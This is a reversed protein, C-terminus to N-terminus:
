STVKSDARHFTTGWTWQGKPIVGRSSLSLMGNSTWSPGVHPGSRSLTLGYGAASIPRDNYLELGSVDGLHDRLSIEDDMEVKDGAIQNRMKLGNKEVLATPSGFVNARSNPTVLVPESIDVHSVNSLSSDRRHKKLTNKAAKLVPSSAKSSTPTQLPTTAKSNWVGEVICGREIARIGFPVEDSRRSAEVMEDRDAIEMAIRSTHKKLKRKNSYRVGIAYILVLCQGYDDAFTRSTPSQFSVIACGLVQSTDLTLNTEGSLLIVRVFTLKVWTQWSSFFAMM